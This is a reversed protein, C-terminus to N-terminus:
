ELSLHLRGKWGRCGGEEEKKRKPIYYSQMPPTSAGIRGGTQFGNRKLMIACLRVYARACKRYCRYLIIIM